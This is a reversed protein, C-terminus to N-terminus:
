CCNKEVCLLKFNFSPRQAKNIMFDLFDIALSQYLFASLKSRSKVTQIVFICLLIDEPYIM